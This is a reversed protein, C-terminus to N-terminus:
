NTSMLLAHKLCVGTNRWNVARTTQLTPHRLSCLPLNKSCTAQFNPELIVGIAAWKVLPVSKGPSPCLQSFYIGQPPLLPSDLSRQVLKAKRSHLVSQPTSRLSRFEQPLCSSKPISLALHTHVWLWFRGGRRSSIVPFLHNVWGAIWVKPRGPLSCENSIVTGKMLPTNRRSSPSCCSVQYSAAVHQLRQVELSYLEKLEPSSLLVVHVLCKVSCLLIHNRGQLNKKEPKLCSAVLKLEM